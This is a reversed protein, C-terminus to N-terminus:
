YSRQEAPPQRAPGSQALHRKLGSDHHQHEVLRQPQPAPPQHTPRRYRALDRVPTSIQKGNPLLWGLSQGQKLDCRSHLLVGRTDDWVLAQGGNTLGGTYGTFDANISKAYPREALDAAALVM